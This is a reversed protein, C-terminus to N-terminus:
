GDAPDSIQMRLILPPTCCGPRWAFGPHDIAPLGDEWFPM